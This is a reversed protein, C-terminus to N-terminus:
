EQEWHADQREGPAARKGVVGIEAVIEENGNEEDLIEDRAVIWVRL